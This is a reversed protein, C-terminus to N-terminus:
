RRTRRACSLFGLGANCERSGLAQHPEDESLCRSEVNRFRSPNLWCPDWVLAQAILMGLTLDAFDCVLLIVAHMGAWALWLWFRAPRWLWLPLSALELILVSWTAGHLFVEPLSLMLDRPVGCRALPNEMLRMLASGDQWSPSTLKTWGSFSYGAALLLAMARPVWKPMAWDKGTVSLMRKKVNWVLGEGLPVLLTLLLALGIYPMAPNLILNNRHFLCSWVYWAVFAALRRKWGLALAFGSMMGIVLMLTVTAPSDTSNLPSPFIARTLNWGAEPIIGDHSFVETGWPLLHAFHIGLYTGLIWRFVAFNQGSSPATM